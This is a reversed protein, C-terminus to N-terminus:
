GQLKILKDDNENEQGIMKERCRGFWFKVSTSSMASSTFCLLLVILGKGLLGQNKCTQLVLREFVIHSFSFSSMVLLKEKEWHKRGM